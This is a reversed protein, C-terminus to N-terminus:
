SRGGFRSQLEPHVRLRQWWGCCDPHVMGRFHGDPVVPVVAAVMPWALCNVVRIVRTM